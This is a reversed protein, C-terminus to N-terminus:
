AVINQKTWVSAASGAAVSSRSSPTHTLRENSRMETSPWSDVLSVTKAIAPPADPTVISDSVGSSSAKPSASSASIRWSASSITDSPSPARRTPRM